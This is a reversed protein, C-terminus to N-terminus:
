RSSTIASINDTAENCSTLQNRLTTRIGQPGTIRENIYETRKSWGGLKESADCKKCATIKQIQGVM